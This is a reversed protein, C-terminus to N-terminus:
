LWPDVIAALKFSLADAPSGVPRAGDITKHIEDDDADDPDKGKLIGLCVRSKAYAKLSFALDCVAKQAKVDDGDPLLVVRPVDLRSLLKTQTPTPCSGFYAVAQYGLRWLRIADFVGEVAIVEGQNDLNDYGFLMEDQSNGFPTDYKNPATGTIDRAVFTSMGNCTVPVIVRGAYRGRKCFGINWERVDSKTLNRNKLYKPIRYISGDYCPIFEKPLDIVKLKDSAVSKKKDGIKALVDASYSRSIESNIGPHQLAPIRHLVASFVFLLADAPNQPHM